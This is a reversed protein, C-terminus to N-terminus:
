LHKRKDERKHILIAIILASIPLLPIAFILGKALLDIMNKFDIIGLDLGNKRVKCATKFDICSHKINILNNTEQL